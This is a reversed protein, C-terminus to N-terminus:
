EKAELEAQKNQMYEQMKQAQRLMENMSPGKPIMAKM